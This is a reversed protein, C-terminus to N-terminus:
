RHRNAPANYPKETFLVPTERPNVKLANASVAGWMNELMNWDSIIGDTVLNEIAMNERFKSSDYHYRQEGTSDASVGVSQM